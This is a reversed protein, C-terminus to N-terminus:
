VGRGEGGDLRGMALLAVNEPTEPFRYITAGKAKSWKRVTIISASRELLARAGVFRPRSWGFFKHMGNACYFAPRAFNTGRLKSQLLLADGGHKPDACFTAIMDSPLKIYGGTGVANNGGAEYRWASVAVRDVEGLDLPVPFAANAEIAYARLDDVDACRPAFHLCAKFLQGNRNGADIREMNAVPNLRAALATAYGEYHDAPLGRMVPLNGVDALSGAVFEYAGPGAMSPAAIAYGGGLIDIPASKDPRIKRAERNHRYWAHFKGSATRIIVPTNGHKALSNALLREDPADVDLVTLGNEHGCQYGIALSKTFKKALKESGRLGVKRWGKVAPIKRVADVPFTSIGAEAYLPQWTSFIGAM